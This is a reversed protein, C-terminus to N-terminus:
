IISISMSLYISLYYISIYIYTHTHTHAMEINKIDSVWTKPSWFAGHIERHFSWSAGVEFGEAHRQNRGGSGPVVRDTRGPRLYCHDCCDSPKEWPIVRPNGPTIGPTTGPIRDAFNKEWRYFMESGLITWPTASPVVWLKIRDYALACRRLPESLVMTTLNRNFIVFQTTQM